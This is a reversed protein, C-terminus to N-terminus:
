RFMNVSLSKVVDNVIIKRIRKGELKPKTEPNKKTTTTPPTKKRQKEMITIKADKKHYLKVISM